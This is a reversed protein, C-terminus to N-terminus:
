KTNWAHGKVMIERTPLTEFIIEQDRNRGVSMDTSSFNVGLSSWTVLHQSVILFRKFDTTKDKAEHGTISESPKM